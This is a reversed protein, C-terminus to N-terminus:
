TLQINDLNLRCSSAELAENTLKLVDVEISAETIKEELDQIQLLYTELLKTRQAEQIKAEM